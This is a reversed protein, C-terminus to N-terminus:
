NLFSVSEKFPYDGVNVVNGGITQLCALNSPILRRIPCRRLDVLKPRLDWNELFLTSTYELYHNMILSVKLAAQHLTSARRWYTAQVRRVHQELGEDGWQKLIRYLVM